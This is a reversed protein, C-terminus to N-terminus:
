RLRVYGVIYNTVNGGGMNDYDAWMRVFMNHNIIFPQFVEEFVSETPLNASSSTLVSYYLDLNTISPISPSNALSTADSLFTYYNNSGTPTVTNRISIGQIKWVEGKPPRIEACNSDSTQTYVKIEGTDPMPLGNRMAAENVINNVILADQNISALKVPDTITQIEEATVESLSKTALNQYIPKKSPSPAYNSM